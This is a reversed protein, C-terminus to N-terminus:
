TEPEPAAGEIVPEGALFAALTKMMGDIGQENMTRVPESGHGSEVLHFATGGDMAEFTYDMTVVPHEEGPQVGKTYDQMSKEWTWVLRNPREVTLYRGEAGMTEPFTMMWRGSERLDADVTLAFWEKLRAPDTYADFVDEPTAKLAVDKVIPATGQENNM